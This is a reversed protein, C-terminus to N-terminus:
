DDGILWSVVAIAAVILVLNVGTSFWHFLQFPLYILFNTFFANAILIFAMIWVLIVIM